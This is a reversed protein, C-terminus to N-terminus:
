FLVGKNRSTSSKLFHHGDKLSLGTPSLGNLTVIHEGWQFQMTLSDFNWIIPKLTRLWEIGLVVDCGGLTLIYFNTIFTNGQLKLAISQCRGGSM